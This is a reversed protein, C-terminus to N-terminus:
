VEELTYRILLFLDTEEDRKLVDNAALSIEAKEVSAINDNDYLAEPIEFDCVDTAKLLVRALSDLLALSIHKTLEYKGDPISLLSFIFTFIITLYFFPPPTFIVIYIRFFQNIQYLLQSSGM